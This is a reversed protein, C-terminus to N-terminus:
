LPLGGVITDLFSTWPAQKTPHLESTLQLSSCISPYIFKRRWLRELKLEGENGLGKALKKQSEGKTVRKREMNPDHSM